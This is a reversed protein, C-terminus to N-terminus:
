QGSVLPYGFAVNDSYNQETNAPSTFLAATVVPVDGPLIQNPDLMQCSRQVTGSGTILSGNGLLTTCSSFIASDYGEKLIYSSSPLSETGNSQTTQAASGPIRYTITYNFTDDANIPMHTVTISVSSNDAGTYNDFSGSFLHRSDAVARGNADATFCQLAAGNCDADTGDANCTSISLEGSGYSATRIRTVSGTVGTLDTSGMLWADHRPRLYIGTNAINGAPAFENCMVFGDLYVDAMYRSTPAEAVTVLNYNIAPSQVSSVSMGRSNNIRVQSNSASAAASLSMAM